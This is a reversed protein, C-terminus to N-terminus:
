ALLLAIVVAYALAHLATTTGDLATTSGRAIRVIADFKEPTLRTLPALDEAAIKINNGAVAAIPDAFFDSRFGDDKIISRLVQLQGDSVLAVDALAGRNPTLRRSATAMASRSATSDTTRLNAM